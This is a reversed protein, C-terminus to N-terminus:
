NNNNWERRGGDRKGGVNKPGEAEEDLTRSRKEEVHKM